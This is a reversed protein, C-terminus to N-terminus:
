FLKNKVGYALSLVFENKSLFNDRFESLTRRACVRGSEILGQIKGEYPLNSIYVIHITAATRPAIELVLRLVDKSLSFEIPEGNVLVQGVPVNGTESKTILYTKLQDSRNEIIQYNTYIKCYTIGDDGEKQLYQRVLVDELGNWDLKPAISSVKAVFEILEQYGDQFYKHHEVALLPKGFFLDFAFEVISPPYRRLFLPFSEYKTIAVDLFDSVALGHDMELNEPIAHSNVAAIYNNSKLAKLAQSSFRGQPFVMIKACPLGTLAQHARMRDSALRSKINLLRLDTATFEGNTHDCGHICISLRDPHAQILKATKKHTRKYNWPIFAVTASFGSKDTKGLLQRYNLFGYSERLLPDDILFNALRNQSHWCGERFLYKLLMAYPMLHAFHDALRFSGDIGQNIDVVDSCALVFVLCQERQFCGWFPLGSISILTSFKKLNSSLVFGFETDNHIPGLSLGSLEGTIARCPSEIKYFLNSNDFSSVSSIGDGTLYRVTRPDIKPSFGYIFLSRALKCLHEILRFSSRNGEVLRALSVASALVCPSEAYGAHSMRDLASELSSVSIVECSVGLFDALQALRLDSVSAQPYFLLLAQSRM